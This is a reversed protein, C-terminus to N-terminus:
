EVKRVPFPNRKVPRCAPTNMEHSRDGLYLDREGRPGTDFLLLDYEAGVETITPVFLAGTKSIDQQIGPAWPGGGAASTTLLGALARNHVTFLRRIFRFIAARAGPVATWPDQLEFQGEGVGDFLRYKRQADAWAAFRVRWSNGDFDFTRVLFIQKGDPSPLPEVDPSEWTGALSDFDPLASPVNAPSMFQDGNFLIDLLGAPQSQSSGCTTTV